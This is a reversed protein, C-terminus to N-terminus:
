NKSEAADDVRTPLELGRFVQDRISLDGVVRREPEPAVRIVTPTALIQRRRSLEPRKVIDIVDIRYKDGLSVRCIETLNELAARQKPSDGAIYLELHWMDSNRVETVKVVKRRIERAM